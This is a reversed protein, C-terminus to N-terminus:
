SPLGRLHRQRSTEVAIVEFQTLVSVNMTWGGDTMSINIKRRRTVSLLNLFNCAQPLLSHPGDNLVATINDHELLAYRLVQLM